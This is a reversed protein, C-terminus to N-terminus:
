KLIKKVFPIIDGGKKNYGRRVFYNFYANVVLRVTAKTAQTYPDVLLEIGGWQGITLESFDGLILGKSAVNNSGYVPRGDILGNEMLYAPFNSVKPTQRLVGLADYAGVFTLNDFNNKNLETEMDIISGYTPSETEATVGYLLGAPSTETAAESSFMTKEVTQQVSNVLDTQIFADVSDNAQILLQRSIDVYGSIRLPALTKKKFQGSGDKAEDLEGGWATTTGTYFPIEINGQLGTLFTCGAQAAILKNELPTVLDLLDTAVDEKGQEAIAAQLAARKQMPIVLSNDRVKTADGMSRRGIGDIVKEPEDFEKRELMARIARVYSFKRGAKKPEPKQGALWAEMTDIKNTWDRVEDKLKGYDTVEGENM